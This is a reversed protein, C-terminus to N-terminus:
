HDSYTIKYNPVRMHHFSHEDCYYLIGKPGTKSAVAEKTCHEQKDLVWEGDKLDWYSIIENCTNM